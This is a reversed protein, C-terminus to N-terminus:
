TRLVTVTEEAILSQLFPHAKQLVVLSQRVQEEDYNRIIQSMIGFHM